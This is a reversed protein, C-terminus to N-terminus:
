RKQAAHTYIEVAVTYIFKLIVTRVSTGSTTQCTELNLVVLQPEIEPEAVGQLLLGSYPM